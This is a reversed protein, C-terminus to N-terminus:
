QEKEQVLNIQVGPEFGFLLQKYPKIFTQGRLGCRSVKHGSTNKFFKQCKSKDALSNSRKVGM